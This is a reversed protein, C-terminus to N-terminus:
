FRPFAMLHPSSASRACLVYVRTSSAAIRSPPCATADLTIRGDDMDVGRVRGDAFGAYARTGALALVTMRAGAPAIPTAEVSGTRVTLRWAGDSRGVIVSGHIAAGFSRVDDSVRLPRQAAGASLRYRYLRTGVVGYFFDGDVRATQATDAFTAPASRQMSRNAAYDPEFLADFVPEGSVDVVRVPFTLVHDEVEQIPNGVLVVRPPTFGAVSEGGRLRSRVGGGPGLAIAYFSWIPSGDDISVIAWPYRVLVHLPTGDLRGTWLTQGSPSLERYGRTGDGQAHATLFGHGDSWLAVYGSDSGPHPLHAGLATRWMRAGTASAAVVHVDDEVYAFRGRAFAPSEGRGACWRQAGDAEAYACIRGHVAFAVVGDGIAPADGAPEDMPATWTAARAVAGTAPAAIRVEPLSYSAQGRPPSGAGACAALLLLALTARPM